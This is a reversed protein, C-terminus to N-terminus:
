ETTETEIDDVPASDGSTDPATLPAPPVNDNPERITAPPVFRVTRGEPTVDDQSLRAELPATWFNVDLEYFQEREGEKTSYQLSRENLTADLLTARMNTFAGVDVRVANRGEIYLDTATQGHDILTVGQPTAAVSLTGAAHRSAFDQVMATMEDTTLNADAGVNIELLPIPSKMRATWARETDIAGRLTREAINLLGDYPPNFLVYQEPRRPQGNILLQGDEIVWGRDRIGFPRYSATLIGGFSDRTVEWLAMGYFILDDYTWAMRQFPSIDGSKDAMWAAAPDVVNGDADVEELTWTPVTGLILNRAKAVAPITMAEMRTMPQVPTAGIIDSFVVTSLSGNSWPSVFDGINVGGNVLDIPKSGIGLWSLLGM